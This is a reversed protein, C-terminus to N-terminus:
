KWVMNSLVNSKNRQDFVKSMILKVERNKYKKKENIYKHVDRSMYKSIRSLTQTPFNEEFSSLAWHLICTSVPYQLRLVDFTIGQEM